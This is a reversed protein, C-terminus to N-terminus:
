QVFISLPTLVLKGTLEKGSPVNFGEGGRQLNGEQIVRM